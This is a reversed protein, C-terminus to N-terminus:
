VARPLFAAAWEADQANLSPEPTGEYIFKRYGGGDYAQHLVEQLDVQGDPDTPKLPIPIVPLRDRLRIPWFQALPRRGARSVLVSYDGEPRNEAPMPPWDRLLDIEVLHANSRFIERRKSLYQLRDDGPRKNSPSLLEIVTVLERGRRDRIELFAVREIDLEPLQVEAPAELLGLNPQGAAFAGTRVVSIDPRGLLRRPEPPLEHIYVHKELLVIYDPGLRPDLQHRLGTLFETHFDQWNDSQELYPNMGPFPSPM